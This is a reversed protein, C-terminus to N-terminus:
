EKVKKEFPRVDNMVPPQVMKALDAQNGTDILIYGAKEEDDMASPNLAYVGSANQKFCQKTTLVGHNNQAIFNKFKTTNATNLPLPVSWTLSQGKDTRTCQWAAVSDVTAEGCTAGETKLLPHWYGRPKLSVTDSEGEKLVRRVSNRTSSVGASGSSACGKLLGDTDKELSFVMGRANEYYDGGPNQWYALTGENTEPNVDFAVYTISGVADNTQQFGTYNGYGNSGPTGSFDAGTNFNVVGYDDFPALTTAIGATRLEYKVRPENNEVSKKYVISLVRQKGSDMPNKPNAMTIKTWLTGQFETNDSASKPSHVLNVERTAGTFSDVM